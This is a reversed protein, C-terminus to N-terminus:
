PVPPTTVDEADLRLPLFLQGRLDAGSKSKVFYYLTHCDDCMGYYKGHKDQKYGPRLLTWKTARCKVCFVEVTIPQKKTQVCKDLLAQLPTPQEASM